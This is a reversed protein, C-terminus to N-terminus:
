RQAEELIRQVEVTLEHTVVASEKDGARLLAAFHQLMPAYMDAGYSFESGSPALRKLKRLLPACKAADKVRSVLGSGSTAPAGPAKPEISLTEAGLIPPGLRAVGGVCSLQAMNSLEGDFSAALQSVRGSTHELMLTAHTPVGQADRKLISTIKQAAGFAAVSLALPYVARDGLVGNDVYLGPWLSSPAAHGFEATLNLPAGLKHKAAIEVFERVAPLLLIWMAEMFLAGNARSAAVIRAAGASTLAAPKECLVAKGAELALVSQEEHQGNRSAIYVADIDDRKLLTPLDGSIGAGIRGAFAEARSSQSSAVAVPTLAGSKQMTLAMREAMRGTGVIAIRPANVKESAQQNERQNESPAAVTALRTKTARVGRVNERPKTTDSALRAWPMLPTDPCDSTMRYSGQDKGANQIALTAETLHLGFDANVRPARREDRADFIEVPGLAFNMAAAGRRGVMAHTPGAPKVKELLPSNILRRRVALRRQITVESDNRWCDKVSLVGEPGFVRFHHDHPAVISCTLRAVPGSAFYLTASSYDPASGAPGVPKGDVVTASAAVITEIRGFAAMLWTLYYGAHELTCGVEFEDEYPWPAGSESFWKRYPAALIYDDDLEAYVLLPEGILKARLAAITMQGSQGLFNCPASAIVRKKEAALAVLKRAADIDTALPKESYVDFGAELAAHSVDYHERPNTLNLVLAERDRSFLDDLSSAKPAKWHDAFAHLRAPDRDWIGAVSIEPHAEFSRMYLDAVFGGGVILVKRTM